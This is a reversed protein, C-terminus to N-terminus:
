LVETLFVLPFRAFQLFLMRTHSSMYVTLLDPFFDAPVQHKILHAAEAQHLQINQLFHAGWWRRTPLQAWCLLSYLASFVAQTQQPNLKSLGLSICTM